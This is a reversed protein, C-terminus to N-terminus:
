RFFFLRYNVGEGRFRREWLKDGLYELKNGRSMLGFEAMDDLEAFIKAQDRKCQHEIFESVPSEGGPRPYLVVTWQLPDCVCYPM